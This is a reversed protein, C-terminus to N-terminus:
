TSSDDGGGNPPDGSFLRGLGRIPQDVEAMNLVHWLSAQTATVVPVGFEIELGDIVSHSRLNMCGIFVADASFGASTWASRALAAIEETSPTALDFGNRIGLNSHGLVPYGCDQLFAVELNAVETTYPSAVALSRVKLAGLARLVSETTTVVPIGIAKELETMLELDSHRGGVFSSATCAYLVVSPRCTALTKAAEIGHRDMARLTDPTVGASILMRAVHVSVSSPVVKPYWTEIVTNVSPVVVGIRKM